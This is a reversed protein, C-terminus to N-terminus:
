FAEVDTGGTGKTVEVEWLKLTKSGRKEIGAFKIRITDGPMPRLENLKIKLGIQGATLTRQQGNIDLLLQPCPGGDFDTGKDVSVIVGTVEDGANDFTIFDNNVQLDPDDWIDTTSM